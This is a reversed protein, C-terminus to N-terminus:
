GDRLFVLILGNPNARYGPRQTTGMPYVEVREVDLANTLDLICTDQARVGNVYVGPDSSGFISTRGRLVIAPCSSAGTQQVRLGAVRRSLVGLLTGTQGWVQEGSLVLASTGRAPGGDPPHSAGARGGSVTSCGALLLVCLPGIAGVGAYRM